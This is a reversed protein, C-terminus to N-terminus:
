VVVNWIMCDSRRSRPSPTLLGTLGQGRRVPAPGLAPGPSPLAAASGDGPAPFLLAGASWGLVSPRLNGPMGTSSIGVGAVRGVAMLTRPARCLLRRLISTSTGSHRVTATTPTDPEPLVDSAM